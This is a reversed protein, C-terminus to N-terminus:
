RLANRGKVINTLVLAVLFIGVALGVNVAIKAVTNHLSPLTLDVVYTSSFAYLVSVPLIKRLKEPYLRVTIALLLATVLVAAVIFIM